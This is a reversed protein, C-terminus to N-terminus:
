ATGRQRYGCEITKAEFTTNLSYGERLAIEWLVDAATWGEALVDVFLNLKKKYM